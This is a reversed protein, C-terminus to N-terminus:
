EYAARIPNCTASSSRQASFNEEPAATKTPKPRPAFFGRLLSFHNGKGFLAPSFQSNRLAIEKFFPELSKLNLHSSDQKQSIFDGFGEAIFPAYLTIMYYLSGASSTKEVAEEVEITLDLKKVPLVKSLTEVLQEAVGKSFFSTVWLRSRFAEPVWIYQLTQGAADPNDIQMTELLLEDESVLRPADSMVAPKLALQQETQKKAKTKRRPEKKAELARQAEEQQKAKRQEVQQKAKAHFEAQTADFHTLVDKEIGYIKFRFLRVGIDKSEVCVGSYSKLKLRIRELIRSADAANLLNQGTLRQPKGFPKTITYELLIHPLDPSYPLCIAAVLAECQRKAAIQKANLRAPNGQKNEHKSQEKM